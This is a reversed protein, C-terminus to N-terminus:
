SGPLGIYEGNSLKENRGTKKEMDPSEGSSSSLFIRKLRAKSQYRGNKHGEQQYSSFIAMPRQELRKRQTGCRIFRAWARSGKTRHEIKRLGAKKQQHQPWKETSWSSCSCGNEIKIESQAKSSHASVFM